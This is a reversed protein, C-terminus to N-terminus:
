FIRWEGLTAMYADDGLHWFDDELKAVYEPDKGMKRIEDATVVITRTNEWEAWVADAEPNPKQRAVSPNEPPFLTADM